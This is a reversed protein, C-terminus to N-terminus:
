SVASLFLASIRRQPIGPVGEGRGTGGSRRENRRTGFDTRGSDAGVREKGASHATLDSFGGDEQKKVQTALMQIFNAAALVTDGVSAGGSSLAASPARHMSPPPPPVSGPGARSAFAGSGGTDSIESVPQM